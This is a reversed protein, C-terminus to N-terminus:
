ARAGEGPAIHEDSLLVPLEDLTCHGYAESGCIGDALGTPDLDALRAPVPQITDGETGVHCELGADVEISVLVKDIECGAVTYAVDEDVLAPREVCAIGELSIRFHMQGLNDRVALAFAHADDEPQGPEGYLVVHVEELFELLPADLACLDVEHVALVLPHNVEVLAHGFLCGLVVDEDVEVACEM